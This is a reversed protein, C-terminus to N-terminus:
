LYTKVAKLISEACSSCKKADAAETQFANSQFADAQFARQDFYDAPAQEAALADPYRAKNYFPDLFSAEETLHSLEGEFKAAKGLLSNLSHERRPNEGRLYLFAKLAKEASQQSQLCAWDFHETEYSDYGAQLDRQAQRFWQEPSQAPTDDANRRTAM